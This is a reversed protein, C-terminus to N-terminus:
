RAPDVVAVRDGRVCVLQDGRFVCDRLAADRAHKRVATGPALEHAVEGAGLHVRGRDSVALVLDEGEPVAGDVSVAGTALNMAHVRVRASNADVEIWALWEGAPSLSFGAVSCAACTPPACTRRGVRQQALSIDTACLSRRDHTTEVTRLVTASRVVVPAHRLLHETGPIKTAAGGAFPMAHLGDPRKYLLTAGDPAIWPDAADRLSQAHPDGGRMVDTRQEDLAFAVNAADLAAYGGGAKLPFGALVPALGALDEALLRNGHLAKDLQVDYDHTAWQRKPLAGVAMLEARAVVENTAIDVVRLEPARGLPQLVGLLARDGSVAVLTTRASAEVMKSWSEDPEDDPAADFKVAPPDTPGEVERVRERRDGAVASATIGDPASSCAGLVVLALLARSV